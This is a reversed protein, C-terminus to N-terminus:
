LTSIFKVYRKSRSGFAKKETLEARRRAIASLVLSSRAAACDVPIL